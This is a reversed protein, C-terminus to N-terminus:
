SEKKGVEEQTEANGKITWGNLHGTGATLYTAFGLWALYPTLCYAATQDVKSWIYTLYGVTATLTLIDLMAEIPRGMGFFLPMWIINLGLQITYLTAGRRTNEVVTPTMSAMGTAWARNAAYGMMLYLTTWAPAFVWPPPRFPPQKLALYQEESSRFTGREQAARDSFKKPQLRGPQSVLGSGLGLGLPLLISIPANSFITIAALLILQLPFVQAM